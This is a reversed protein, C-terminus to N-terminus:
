IIYNGIWSSLFGGLCFIVQSDLNLVEFSIVMLLKAKLDAIKKVIFNGEMFRFVAASKMPAIM